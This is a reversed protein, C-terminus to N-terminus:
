AEPNVPMWEITAQGSPLCQSVKDRSEQDVGGDIIYIAATRDSSLNTLVSRLMVALPTVYHADTACTIVVPERQTM